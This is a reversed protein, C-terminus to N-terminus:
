GTRFFLTHNREMDIIEHLFVKSFDNHKQIVPSMFLLCSLKKKQEMADQRKIIESMRSSASLFEELTLSGKNSKDIAKFLGNFTLANDFTVTIDVMFLDEARTKASPTDVPHGNEDYRLCGTCYLVTCYLVTSCAM